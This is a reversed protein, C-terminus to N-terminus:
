NVMSQGSSGRDIYNKYVIQRPRISPKYTTYLATSSRHQRPIISSRTVRQVVRPPIVCPSNWPFQFRAAAPYPQPSTFLTLTLHWGVCNTSRKVTRWLQVNVHHENSINANDSPKRPQSSFLFWISNEIQTEALLLMVHQVIQRKRKVPILVQVVELVALAWSFMLDISSLM